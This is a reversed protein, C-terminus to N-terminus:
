VIRSFGVVFDDLLVAKEVDTSCQQQSPLQLGYKVIVRVHFIVGVGSRSAPPRELVGRRGDELM